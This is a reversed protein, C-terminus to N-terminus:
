CGENRAGELRRLNVTRSWLNEGLVLNTPKLWAFNESIINIQEEGAAGLAQGFAPNCTVLRNSLGWLERSDRRGPVLLQSIGADAAADWYLFM